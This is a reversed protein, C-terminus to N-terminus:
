GVPQGERHLVAVVGECPPSRIPDRAAPVFRDGALWHLGDTAADTVEDAAVDQELADAGAAHADDMPGVIRVEIAVHSELEQAGAGPGTAVVTGSIEHGLALPLPQNTRVGDYFYGLDTHCVGCGAIAVVVEGAGPEFAAETRVLPANAQNMQWRYGAIAM